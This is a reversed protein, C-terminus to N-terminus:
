TIKLKPPFFRLYGPGANQVNLRQEKGMRYVGKDTGPRFSCGKWGAYPGRGAM